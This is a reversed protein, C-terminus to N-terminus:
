PGEEFAGSHSYSGSGRFLPAEREGLPDHSGQLSPQHQLGRRRRLYYSFERHWDQFLSRCELPDDSPLALAGLVMGSSMMYMESNLSCTCTM